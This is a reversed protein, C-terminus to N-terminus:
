YLIGKFLITNECIEYKVLYFIFGVVRHTQM